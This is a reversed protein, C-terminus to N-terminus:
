GSDPGPCCSNVRPADVGGREFDGIPLDDEALRDMGDGIAVPDLGGEQGLDEDVPGAAAAMQVQAQPLGLDVGKGVGLSLGAQRRQAQGEDGAQQLM